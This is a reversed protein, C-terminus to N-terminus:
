CLKERLVRVLDSLRYPKRLFTGEDPIQRRAVSGRASTVVLEVDPRIRHVRESLQMGSMAGPLELDTFLVKVDPRHGLLALAERSNRAELATWGANSIIEAAMRRVLPEDEVVLVASKERKM